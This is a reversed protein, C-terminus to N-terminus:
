LRRSQHSGQLLCLAWSSEPEQCSLCTIGGMERLDGTQMAHSIWNRGCARDPSTYAGDLVDSPLYMEKTHVSSCFGKLILMSEAEKMDALVLARASVSNPVMKLTM